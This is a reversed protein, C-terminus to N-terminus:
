SILFVVYIIPHKQFPQHIIRKTQLMTPWYQVREGGDSKLGVPYCIEAFSSDDDKDSIDKSNSNTLIDARAARAIACGFQRIMMTM